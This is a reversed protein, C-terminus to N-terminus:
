DNSCKHGCQIIQWLVIDGLESPLSKFFEVILKISPHSKAVTEVPQSWSSVIAIVKGEWRLLSPPTRRFREILNNKFGLLAQSLEPLAAESGKIQEKYKASRTLLDDSGQEADIYRLLEEFTPRRPILLQSPGYQSHPTRLKDIRQSPLVEMKFGEGLVDDFAPTDDKKRQDQRPKYHCAPKLVEKFKGNGLSVTSRIGDQSSKDKEALHPAPDDDKLSQEEEM